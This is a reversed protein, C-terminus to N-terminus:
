LIYKNSAPIYSPYASASDQLLTKLSELQLLAAESAYSLSATIIPLDAQAKQTSKQFMATPEPVTFIYPYGSTYDSTASPPDSFPAEM